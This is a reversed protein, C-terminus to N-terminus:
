GVEGKRDLNEQLATISALDTFTEDLQSQLNQSLEQNVHLDTQLQVCQREARNARQNAEILSEEITNKEEKLQTFREDMTNMVTTISEVKQTLEVM